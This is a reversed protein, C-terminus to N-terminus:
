NTQQILIEQHSAEEELFIKVDNISINIKIFYKLNASCDFIHEVVVRPVWLKHGNNVPPRQEFSANHKLFNFQTELHITM